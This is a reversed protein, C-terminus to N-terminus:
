TYYKGLDFQVTVKLGQGSTPTDLHITAHHLEVIQHVIALGLGSGATNTGLVRYFREFVQAHLEPSIGPGNDIVTLTAKHNLVSVAVKIAGNEKTYRIANDVLNRVLISIATPNGLINVRRDNGVLEIDIHKKIAKPALQAIVEATLSALDMLNVDHLTAEPVLRSLTLLQQVVHSSRNVSAILNSLATERQKDTKAKLAVQAQTKIAALPTRLEHAANASFAKERELSEHIRHMLKNLEDVLQMMESPVTQPDIPELFHSERERLETSVQKLAKLSRNVIFWILLGVIPYSILYLMLQHWWSEFKTHSWYRQVFYSASSTLIIVLTFSLLLNFVLYRRISPRM